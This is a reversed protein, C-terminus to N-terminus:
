PGLFQVNVADTLDTANKNLIMRGIRVPNGAFNKDAIPIATDIGALAEAKTGYFTHSYRVVAVGANQPNSSAYFWVEQVHWPNANPVPDLTNTTDNWYNLLDVERLNIAPAAFPNNTPNYWGRGDTSYGFIFGEDQQPVPPRHPNLPDTQFNAGWRYIAGEAVSFKNPNTPSPAIECGSSLKSGESTYLDLVTGGTLEGYIMPTSVPTTAANQTTGIRGIKVYKRAQSPNARAVDVEAVVLDNRLWFDPGVAAGVRTSRFASLQPSGFSQTSIIASLPNTKDVFVLTGPTIGVRYDARVTTTAPSEDVLSESVTIKNDTVSALTYTGDNLGTGSITIKERGILPAGSSYINDGSCTATGTAPSAPTGAIPVSFQTASILTVTGGTVNYESQDFGVIDVIHGDELGHYSEAVTYTAIGGSFTAGSLVIKTLGLTTQSNNLLDNFGTSTSNISNDASAFTIDSGTVEPQIYIQAGNVVGGMANALVTDAGVLALEQVWAGGNYVMPMSTSEDYIRWGESPTMYVWAGSYFAAFQGERGAWEGTAPSSIVYAHGASPSPPPATTTFNIARAQVLQDFRQLADNMTVHKQAQDAALLPVGLKASNDM